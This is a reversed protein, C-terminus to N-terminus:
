LADYTSLLSTPWLANGTVNPLFLQLLHQELIFKKFCSKTQQSTKLTDKGQMTARKSGHGNMQASLRSLYGLLTTLLLSFRVQFALHLVDMQTKLPKMKLNCVPPSCFPTYLLCGFSHLLHCRLLLPVSM